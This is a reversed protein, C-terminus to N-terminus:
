LTLTNEVSNSRLDLVYLKWDGSFLPYFARLLALIIVPVTIGIVVDTNKDKQSCSIM